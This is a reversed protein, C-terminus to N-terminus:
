CLGVTAGSKTNSSVLVFGFGEHEQRNLTVDYPYNFRPKNLGVNYGAVGSLIVCAGSLHDM